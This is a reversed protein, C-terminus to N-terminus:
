VFVYLGRASEASAPMAITLTGSPKRKSMLADTTLRTFRVQRGGRPEGAHTEHPLWQGRPLQSPTVCLPNNAKPLSSRSRGSDHTHPYRNVLTAAPREQTLDFQTTEPWDHSRYEPPLFMPEIGQRELDFRQCIESVIVPLTEKEMNLNHIASIKRRISALFYISSDHLQDHEQVCGLRTTTNSSM